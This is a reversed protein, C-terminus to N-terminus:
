RPNRWLLRYYTSFMEGKEIERHKGKPHAPIHELARVWWNLRQKLHVAVKWQGKYYRLEWFVAQAM